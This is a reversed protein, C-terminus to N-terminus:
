KSSQWASMGGTNSDDRPIVIGVPTQWGYAYQTRFLEVPITQGYAKVAIKTLASFQALDRLRRQLGRWTKYEWVPRASIVEAVYVQYNAMTQTRM